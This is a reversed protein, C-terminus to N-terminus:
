TDRDCPSASSASSARLTSGVVRAAQAGRKARHTPLSFVRTRTARACWRSTVAHTERGVVGAAPRRGLTSHKLSTGRHTRQTRRPERNVDSGKGYPHLSGAHALLRRLDFPVVPQHPDSPAAHAAVPVPDAV